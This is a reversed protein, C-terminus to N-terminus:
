LTCQLTAPHVDTSPFMVRYISAIANSDFPMIFSSTINASLMWHSEFSAPDLLQRALISGVTRVIM